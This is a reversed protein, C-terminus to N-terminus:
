DSFLLDFVKFYRKRIRCPSLRSPIDIKTIFIKDLLEREENMSKGDTGIKWSNLNKLSRLSFM